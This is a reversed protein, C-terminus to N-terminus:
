TYSKILYNQYQQTGFQLLEHYNHQLSNKEFNGYQNLIVFEFAIGKKIYLTSWKGDCNAM